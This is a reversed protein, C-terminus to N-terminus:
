QQVPMTYGAQEVVRLFDPDDYLPEFAAWQRVHPLKAFRLRYVAELRRIAAAREGLALHVAAMAFNGFGLRGWRSELEALVARADADRGVMAYARGLNSLALWRGQGLEVARELPAIAEAPRGADVLAWGLADYGFPHNGHLEIMRRAEAIAPEPDALHLYTGALNYAVVPSLPDLEQARKVAALAEEFRGMNDLYLTSLVLTFPQDPALAFARDFSARADEWQWSETHIWGLLAHAVALTSDLQLARLAAERAPPFAEEPPVAAVDVLSISAHALGVWALAYTSDRAIAQQYYEIAQRTSGPIRQNLAYQGKLYLHYAERDSSHQAVLPADINLRLRLARAIARAIEEQVALVDDPARDWTESWLHSGDRTSVLQATIRLRDESRRVSGELVLAVGLQKGVERVDVVRGKYQFSSTRATVRLGDINSLAHILEETMGDSFYAEAARPDLDVFPLVVLSRGADAGETHWWRGFLAFVVLLVPVALWYRSPGRPRPPAAAFAPAVGAAPSEEARGTADTLGPTPTVSAVAATNPLAPAPPTQEVSRAPETRLREVLAAVDPDPNAGFEERLLTAHLCGHQIAAGRDGAAALARMLRLAIRSSGPATTALRRWWPVASAANGAAEEREALVELAAAYAAALREREAGAWNEFEPSRGLFFGDLFPGSYCEVARAPEGAALAATFAAVDSQVVEPNLRLVDGASLIAEPGLTRRIAHVAQKLSNRAREGSSEPWLYAVLKDRSLGEHPSTALLALLAIRHRQVPPGTLPGDQGRLSAGGLLELSFAM